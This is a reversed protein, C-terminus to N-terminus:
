HKLVWPMCRHWENGASVHAARCQRNLDYLQRRDVHPRQLHVEYQLQALATLQKIGDHLSAREALYPLRVAPM